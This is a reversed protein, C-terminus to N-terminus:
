KLETPGWFAPDGGSLDAISTETLFGIYRNRLDAWRTHITCPQDDSCSSRGLFCNNWASVRDIPEVIDFLSVDRSPRALRFGGGTGKRSELVGGVALTQLLKGLYNRPAGTSEALEATGTFEAAPRTALVSLARVAHIASRSLM